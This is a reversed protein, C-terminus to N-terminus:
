AIHTRVFILRNLLLHIEASKPDNKKTCQSFLLICFGRLIAAVLRPTIRCKLNAM